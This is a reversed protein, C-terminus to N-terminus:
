EETSEESPEEAAEETPIDEATEEAAPEEVAGEAPAEEANEEVAPEESVEETEEDSEEAQERAPEQAPTEESSEEATEQVSEQCTEDCIEEASEEAEEATEETEEAEDVTLAGPGALAPIGLKEEFKLFMLALGIPILVLSIFQSTSVGFLFGRIEDYRLYELLFREVAYCILYLGLVSGPKRPKKAYNYLFCFLLVNLAAELLQVPFLAVGHPAMASNFYVGWPPDMPMGYCCGAFFCGIRGIGHVLPVSPIIVNIMEGLNLKRVICYPIFVAFGGLLGGYFVFGYSFFERFGAFSGFYFDLNTSIHEWATIVYLLKGGLIAGIATYTISYLVDDPDITTQKARRMALSVGLVAGILICLGYMPIQFNGINIFPYM